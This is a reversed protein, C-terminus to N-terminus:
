GAIPMENNYVYFDNRRNEKMSYKSFAYVTECIYVTAMFAYDLDKKMNSPKEFYQNQFEEIISHINQRSNIEGFKSGISRINKLLVFHLKLEYIFHKKFENFIELDTHYLCFFDSIYHCIEGLRFSFEHLSVEEEMLYEAEECVYHMYNEVTHPKKLLKNTLDPKINGYVFSNKELVIKDKLNKYIVKSLEIHTLLNMVSRREYIIIEGSYKWYLLLHM